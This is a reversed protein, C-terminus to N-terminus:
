AEFLAAFQTQFSPMDFYDRWLAIRGDADLEFVGTVPLEAWRDGVRFRDTRENMVINGTAAERHIVWDTEEVSGGSAVLPGLLEKIGEPGHQKGMPVNDYEVDASVLECAGDLDKACIRAIFTRVTEIPEM